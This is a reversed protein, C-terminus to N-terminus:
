LPIVIEQIKKRLNYTNSMSAGYAGADCIAIFENKKVRSIERKKAMVDTTECVPGVITSLVKESPHDEIIPLLHHYAQYLAPRMLDNMGADIITFHHEGNQKERIVKSILLGAKGVLWRGPEFVIKPRSLNDYAPIILEALAQMYEPLSVLSQDDPQYDIGLGGGVDIFDLTTQSHKALELLHKTAELTASMDTLQSGIHISLGALRIGPSKNTILILKKIEELSMGFKHGSEGTSIGWHTKPKVEPNLRFAIPTPNQKISLSLIDELEDASEINVSLINSQIAFQIEERTKGVGSFVIRKSDMGCSLARELEGGSVIDAGVGLKNLVELIQPHPNAKLAYCLLHDKLGAKTAATSFDIASQQVKKLSYIYFPTEHQSCLDLLSVNDFILNNKYRLLRDELNM